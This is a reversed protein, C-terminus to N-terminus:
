CRWSDLTGDHKKPKELMAVVRDNNEKEQLMNELKKELKDTEVLLKQMKRMIVGLPNPQQDEMMDPETDSEDSPLTPYGQFPEVTFSTVTSDRQQNAISSESASIDDGKTNNSRKLEMQEMKRMMVQVRHTAPKGRTSQNGGPVRTEEQYAPKRRTSQNGGPVRTEEQYEPKGRTSQNGGPVLTEEM